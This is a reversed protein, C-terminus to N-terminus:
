HISQDDIGLYWSSTQTPLCLSLSHLFPPPLGVGWQGTRLNVVVMPLGEECGWPSHLDWVTSNSISPAPQSSALLGHWSEELVNKLGAFDM